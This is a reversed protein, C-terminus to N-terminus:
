FPPEAGPTQAQAPPAAWGGQAPPQQAPPAGWAPPQGPQPQQAPPQGQGWAQPAEAQPPPGAPQPGWGGQAPPQQPPAPPAGWAPQQAPQPGWGGQAPPQQAPPQGWAAAPQQAPPAGWGGQAPPQQAPAPPAGWGGHSPPQGGVQGWGGQQPAMMDTSPAQRPRTARYAEVAALSAGDAERLQVGRIKIPETGQPNPKLEVLVWRLYMGPKLGGLASAARRLDALEEKGSIYLTRHGDDAFGPNDMRFKGSLTEGSRFQTALVVQVQAMDTGDPWKKIQGAMDRRPVTLYGCDAGKVEDWQPMVIGEVAAGVPAGKWSVAPHGTGGGGELLDRM